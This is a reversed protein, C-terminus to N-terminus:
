ETTLFIQTFYRIGNSGRAVGVGTHTFTGEINERHGSSAIWGAVVQEALRTGTRGDYAVNEALARIPLFRGIAAAREDFGDHGFDRRRGSMARSHDRASAAIRPDYILPPLGRSSRHANVLEHIRTELATDTLAPGEENAVPGRSEPVAMTAVCGAATAIGIMLGLARRVM